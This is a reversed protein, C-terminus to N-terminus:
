KLLGCGKKLDRIRNKMTKIVTEMQEIQYEMDKIERKVYDESYHKFPNKM